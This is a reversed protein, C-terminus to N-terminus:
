RRRWFVTLPPPRLQQDVRWVAMEGLARRMERLDFRDGLRHVDDGALFLMACALDDHLGFRVEM